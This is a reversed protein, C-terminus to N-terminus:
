SPKKWGPMGSIATSLGKSGLYGLVPTAITAAGGVLSMIDDLMGPQSAEWQRQQQLGGLAQNQMGTKNLAFQNNGNFINYLLNTLYQDQSLQAQGQQSQLESQANAYGSEINGFTTEPSANRTSMRESASSLARARSSALQRQRGGFINGVLNPQIGFTNELSGRDTIGATSSKMDALQQIIDAYNNPRDAHPAYPSTQPTGMVPM